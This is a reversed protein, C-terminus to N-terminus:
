EVATPVPDELTTSDAVDDAERVLLRTTRRLLKRLVVATSAEYDAYFARRGQKGLRCAGNVSGFSEPRLTRERFLRWVWADIRPRLPEVLDCALSERGFLLDHHFGILPDLGAARISTVADGHAMTYALSLCANVPDRPPRRNRANFALAPAFLTRYGRFYAAAAAGELGRVQARSLADGTKVVSLMHGLTSLAGAIAAREDPRRELARRLMAIQNVIKRRVLARSWQTRWSEDLARAYQSLRRGAAHDSTGYLCACREDRRPDVVVLGAGQEALASIIRSDLMAGRHVVVLDLTAVPVAGTRAGGAVFAIREGDLRMEVDRRDVYLTGM